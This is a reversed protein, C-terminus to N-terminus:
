SFFVLIDRAAAIPMRKLIGAPVNGDEIGVSMNIRSFASFRPHDFLHDLGAWDYVNLPTDHRPQLRCYIMNNYISIRFPPLRLARAVEDTARLVYCGGDASRGLITHETFNSGSIITDVLQQHRLAFPGIEAHQLPFSGLFILLRLTDQLHAGGAWFDLLAISSLVPMECTSMWDMLPDYPCQYVSLRSLEPFSVPPPPSLSNGDWTVRTLTLTTLTPFASLFLAFLDFTQFQMGSIEVSTISQFAGSLAKDVLPATGDSPVDNDSDSPQRFAITRIAPLFIDCRELFQDLCSTPIYVACFLHWRSRLLWSRAVLTCNRLTFRDHALADIIADVVEAPLIIQHVSRHTEM